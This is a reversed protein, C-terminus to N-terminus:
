AFGRDIAALYEARPSSILAPPAEIEEMFAWPNFGRDILDQLSLDPGAPACSADAPDDAPSSPGASESLFPNPLSNM